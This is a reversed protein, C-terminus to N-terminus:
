MYFLNFPNFHIKNCLYWQSNDPQLMLLLLHVAGPIASISVIYTTGIGFLPKRCYSGEHSLQMSPQHREKLVVIYASQRIAGTPFTQVMTLLGDISSEVDEVVFLCKLWSPICGTTSKYYSDASTGMWPLVTDNRPAKHKRWRTSGTCSVMHFEQEDCQFFTVSIAVANYLNYMSDNLRSFYQDHKIYHTFNAFRKFGWAIHNQQEGELMAFCKALDDLTKLEPRVINIMGKILAKTLPM